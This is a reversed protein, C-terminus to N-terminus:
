DMTFARYLSEYKNNIVIEQSQYDKFGFLMTILAMIIVFIGSISINRLHNPTILRM